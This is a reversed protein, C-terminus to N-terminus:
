SISRSFHAVFEIHHTHPFMDIGQVYELSFGLESLGRTDKSFAVPSCSVYILTRINGFLFANLNGGMGKRPPDVLLTDYSLAFNRGLQRALRADVGAVDFSLKADFESQSQRNAKVIAASNGDFGHVGKVLPAYAFTLNGDGCYLELVQEAGSVRIRDSILERLRINQAANGQTFGDKGHSEDKVCQVQGSEADLYLELKEESASSQRRITSLAQNIKPDAVLCQEVNVIEHSRKRFFGLQDGCRRVQIRTRFGFPKAAPLFPGRARPEWGARKLSHDLTKQKAELQSEYNWDLWDCGGCEGFYACRPDVRQPSKELIEVLTADVFRNGASEFEVRVRDGPLTGPVFVVEGSDSRGVGQGHIGTNEIQLDRQIM